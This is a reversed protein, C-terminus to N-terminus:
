NSLALISKWKNEPMELLKGGASELAIRSEYDPKDQALRTIAHSVGFVNEERSDWHSLLLENESKNLGVSSGLLKIQEIKTGADGELKRAENTAVINRIKTTFDQDLVLKTANAIEGQIMLLEQQQIREDSILGFDSTIKTGRHVFDVNILDKSGFVCGNECFSDFVFLSFGTRSAGVESNHYQFGIHWDRNNPGMGTLQPDRTIYRIRTHTDTIQGGLSRWDKQRDCILELMPDILLNDDIPKFRDSVVARALRNGNPQITRVQFKKDEPQLQLMRSITEARLENHGRDTLEQGFSRLGKSLRDSLQGIAYDTPTWNFTRGQDYANFEFGGNASPTVDLTNAPIAYDERGLNKIRGYLKDLSDNRNENIKTVTQM